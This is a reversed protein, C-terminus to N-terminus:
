LIYLVYIITHIHETWMLDIINISYFNGLDLLGWRVLTTGSSFIKRYIVNKFLAQNTQFTAMIYVECWKSAKQIIFLTTKGLFDYFVVSFKGCCFQKKLTKKNIRASAIIVFIINNKWKSFFRHPLDTSWSIM